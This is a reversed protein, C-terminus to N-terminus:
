QLCVRLGHPSFALNRGVLLFIIAAHCFIVLRTEFKALLDERFDKKFLSAYTRIPFVDIIM